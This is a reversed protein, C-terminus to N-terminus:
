RDFHLQLKERQSFLFFDMASDISRVGVLPSLYKPHCLCRMDKKAKMRKRRCELLDPFLFGGSKDVFAQGCLSVAPIKGPRDKM